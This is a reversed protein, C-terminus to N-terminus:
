MNLLFLRQGNLDTLFKRGGQQRFNAMSSFFSSLRVKPPYFIRLTKISLWMNCSIAIYKLTTDTYLDLVLLMFGIAVKYDLLAQVVTITTNRNITFTLRTSFSIYGMPILSSHDIQSYFSKRRGFFDPTPLGVTVFTSM